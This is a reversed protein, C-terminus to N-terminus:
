DLYAFLEGFQTVPEADVAPRVVAAAPAGAPRAPADCVLQSASRSRAEVFVLHKGAGFACGAGDMTPFGSGRVTVATGGSAPGETPEVALVEAQRCTAYVAGAWPPLPCMLPSLGLNVKRDTVPRDLRAPIPTM